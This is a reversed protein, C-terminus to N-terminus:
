TRRYNAAADHQLEVREPQAAHVEELSRMRTEIGFAVLVIVLMGFLM